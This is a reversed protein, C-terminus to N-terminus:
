IVHDSDDVQCHEADAGDAITKKLMVNLEQLLLKKKFIWVLMLNKSRSNGATWCWSPGSGKSVGQGAQDTCFNPTQAQSRGEVVFKIVLPKLIDRSNSINLSKCLLEECKKKIHKIYYQEAAALLKASKDEIKDIKGGYIYSLMDQVADSDIGDINIKGTAKEKMSHVFAAKPDEIDALDGMNLLDQLEHNEVDENNKEVEGVEM